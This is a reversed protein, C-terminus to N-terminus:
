EERRPAGATEADKAETERALLEAETQLPEYRCLAIIEAGGEVALGTFFSGGPLAEVREQMNRLGMGNGYEVSSFGIGDDAICLILESDRAALGVFVKSAGSHKQVNSLAEQTIRLFAQSTVPPLPPLPEVQVDAAIGSRWAWDAAYERIQTALDPSPKGAPRLENLLVTLEKQVNGTLKRADEIRAKAAEPDRSLLESAAGLQLSAAFVQQKVTDHLDRALRNREELTALEQRVAVVERLQAAMQNLHRALQGLEDESRDRATVSFDGRGWADAATAIDNLRRILRRATFFGFLIGPFASFFAVVLASPLLVVLFVAVPSDKPDNARASHYYVVGVTKNSADRVPVAFAMSSDRMRMSLRAVRKEGSLARRFLREHESAIVADLKPADTRVERKPTVYAIVRANEPADPTGQIVALSKLGGRVSVGFDLGEDDKGDGRTMLSQLWKQVAQTDAPTSSLAPAIAASRKGADEAIIRPLWSSKFFFGAGVGIILTEIVLTTLVTVLMYSLTLRWQLRQLPRPAAVIHSKVRNAAGARAVGASGNEASKPLHEPMGQSM